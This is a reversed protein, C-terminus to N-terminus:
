RRHEDRMSPRARLLGLAGSQQQNPVAPRTHRPLHRIGQLFPREGHGHLHLRLVAEFDHPSLGSMCGNGVHEGGIAIEEARRLIQGTGAWRVPYARRAM